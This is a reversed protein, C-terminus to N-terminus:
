PRADLHWSTHVWRRRSRVFVETARGELAHITEGTVLTVRYESFLVVTGGFRHPVTLPFAVGMLQTGGAAFRESEELSHALTHWPRSDPGIAVLEPALHQRLTATDGTFWAEWVARRATLLEAFRHGAIPSVVRRAVRASPRVGGVLTRLLGPVRM